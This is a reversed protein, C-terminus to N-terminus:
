NPFAAYSELVISRGRNTLPQQNQEQSLRNLSKRDSSRAEAIWLRVRAITPAPQSPALKQGSSSLLLRELDRKLVAASEDALRRRSRRHAAFLMLAELPTMASFSRAFRIARQRRKIRAAWGAPAGTQQALTDPDIGILDAATRIGARRLKALARRSFIALTYLAVDCSNGGTRRTLRRQCRDDAQSPIPSPNREQDADTPAVHKPGVGNPQAATVLEAASSSAEPSSGIDAYVPVPVSRQKPVRVLLVTTGSAPQCTPTPRLLGFCRQIIQLM